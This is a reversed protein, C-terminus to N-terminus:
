SHTTQILSFQNIPVTTKNLSQRISYQVLSFESGEM